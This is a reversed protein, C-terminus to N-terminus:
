GLIVERCLAVHCIRGRIYTVYKYGCVQADEAVQLAMERMAQRVLVTSAALLTPVGPMPMVLIHTKWVSM